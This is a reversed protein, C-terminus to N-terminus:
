GWMRSRIYAEQGGLEFKAKDKNLERDSKHKRLNLRQYKSKIKEFEIPDIKDIKVLEFHTITIGQKALITDLEDKLNISLTESDAIIQDM